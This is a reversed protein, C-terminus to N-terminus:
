PSSLHSVVLVSSVNKHLGGYLFADATNNAPNGEDCALHLFHNLYLMAITALPYVGDTTKGEQGPM